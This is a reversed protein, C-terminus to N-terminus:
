CNGTDTHLTQNDPVDYMPHLILCNHRLLISVQSQRGLLTAYLAGSLCVNSVPLTLRRQDCEFGKWFLEYLCLFAPLYM